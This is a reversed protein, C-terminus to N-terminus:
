SRVQSIAASILNRTSVYSFLITLAVALVLLCLAPILVKKKLGLPLSSLWHM